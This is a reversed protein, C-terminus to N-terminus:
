ENTNKAAQTLITLATIILDQQEDSLTHTLGEVWRSRAEVGKIIINRGEDTLALLKARRDVPDETRLILGRNVLHDVTQSAAANTVGLQGGIDSVGSNGNFFLRMLVSIQSFTLGTEGMFRRFDRGSRHMFVESWEHVVDSLEKTQSM